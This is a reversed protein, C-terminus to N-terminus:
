QNKVEEKPEQALWVNIVRNIIFICVLVGCLPIVGYVVGMSLKLSPSTQGFTRASLALGYRAFIVGVYFMSAYVVTQYVKKTLDHLKSSFLDVVAHGGRYVLVSAGLLDLWIFCYRATEETWTFSSGMVYRSFVQLASCCLMIVVLLSCLGLIGSCILDCVRNFHKM